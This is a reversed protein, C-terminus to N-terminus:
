AIGPKKRKWTGKKLFENIVDAAAADWDAPLRMCTGRCCVRILDLVLYPRGDVADM